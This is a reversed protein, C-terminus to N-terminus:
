ELLKQYQQLEWSYDIGLEKKFKIADQLLKAQHEKRLFDLQQTKSWEDEDQAFSGAGASGSAGQTKSWEDEDQAFDSSTPTTTGSASASGTGTTGSGSGPGSTGAPGIPTGIFYQGGTLNDIVIIEMEWQLRVRNLVPENCVVMIDETSGGYEGMIQNCMWVFDQFYQEYTIRSGGTIFVGPGLVDNGWFKLLPSSQRILRPYDEGIQWFPIPILLEAPYDPIIPGPTRRSKFRTSFLENVCVRLLRVTVKDHGNSSFWEQVATVDSAPVANPSSYGLRKAFYKYLYRRILSKPL